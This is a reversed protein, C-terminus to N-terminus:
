LTLTHTHTLTLALAWWGDGVNSGVFPDGGTGDAEGGLTHLRAQPHPHPM